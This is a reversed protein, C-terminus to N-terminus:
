TWHLDRRQVATVTSPMFWEFLHTRTEIKGIIKARLRLRGAMGLLPMGVVLLLFMGVMQQSTCHLM